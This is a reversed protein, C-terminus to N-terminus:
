AEGRASDLAAELGAPSLKIGEQAQVRAVRALERLTRGETADALQDSTTERDLGPFLDPRRAGRTALITFLQRREARNPLESVIQEAGTALLADPPTAPCRVVVTVRHGGAALRQDAVVSGLAAATGGIPAPDATSRTDVLDLWDLFLSVPEPRSILHDRLDTLAEPVPRGRAPGRFDISTRGPPVIQRTGEAPSWWIAPLGSDTAALSLLQRYPLLTLNPGVHLDAINGHVIAARGRSWAARLRSVLAESTTEM